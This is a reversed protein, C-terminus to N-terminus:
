IKLGGSSHVGANAGPCNGEQFKIIPFDFVGVLEGENEFYQM